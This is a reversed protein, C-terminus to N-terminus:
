HLEDELSALEVRRRRLQGARFRVALEDCRDPDVSLSGCGPRLGTLAPGLGAAGTLAEWRERSWGVTRAAEAGDEVRLLTPVTEIQHHWSAELSTDDVPALGEPFGPADQTVVTVREGAERLAILIRAVRACTPCERKVCAVLGDPLRPKM